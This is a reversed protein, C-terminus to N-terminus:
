NENYAGLKLEFGIEEVWESALEESEKEEDSM